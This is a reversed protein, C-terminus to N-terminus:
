PSATTNPQAGTMLVSVVSAKAWVGVVAILGQNQRPQEHHRDTRRRHEHETGAAVRWGRRISTPERPRQPETGGTVASTEDRLIKRRGRRNPGSSTVIDRTHPRVM